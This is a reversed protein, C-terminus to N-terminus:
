TSAGEILRMRLKNEIVNKGPKLWGNRVFDLTAEAVERPDAELRTLAVPAIIDAGKNCHTLLAVEQPIRLNKELLATVVGRCLVDHMVLVADFHVGSEIQRKMYNYGDRELQGCRVPENGVPALGAALMADKVGRAELQWDLEYDEGKPFMSLTLIDRRGRALLHEVADFAAHYIDFGPLDLWSVNPLTDLWAELRPNHCLGLVCKINEAQLKEEMDAFFGHDLRRDLAFFSQIMIGQEKGAALLAQIMLRFFPSELAFPDDGFLAAVRDTALQAGCVVTGQRPKRRVLGKASLRKLSRQITLPAVGFQESLETTTPLRDNIRLKGSLIEGEFHDAIELYGLAM